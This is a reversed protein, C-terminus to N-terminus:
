HNNVDQRVKELRLRKAAEAKCYIGFSSFSSKSSLKFLPLIGM